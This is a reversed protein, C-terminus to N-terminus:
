GCASSRGSILVPCMSLGDGNEESPVFPIPSPPPAAIWAIQAAIWSARRWAPLGATTLSEWLGGSRIQRISWAGSSVAARTSTVCCHLDFARPLEVRRRLEDPVDEVVGRLHRLQEGPDLAELDLVVPVPRGRDLDREPHAPQLEVELELLDLLSRDFVRLQARLALADARDDRHLGLEVECRVAFPRVHAPLRVDADGARDPAHPLPDELRDDVLLDSVDQVRELGLDGLRLAAARLFADM